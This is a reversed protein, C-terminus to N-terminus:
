RRSRDSYGYAITLANAQCVDICHCCRTCDGSAVQAAGLELSPQLVEQVPCVRSCDGCNTCRSRHFGLRLPAVRGVLAYLGGMPCLSRCWLRRALVVELLMLGLLCSIALWSGFGITRGAMGIPSVIEFLPLGTLATIVSVLALAWYKLSLPLTRNGSSCRQRLKDGFEMLLYVPCVWSCFTRGGVAGYFLTVGLASLLYSPIVVGSALLVQLSALPDALPVGLLDGAALTGRFVTFGALPSAILAVVAVQVGRRAVTWRRFNM